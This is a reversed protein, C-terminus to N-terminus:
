ENSEIYKSIVELYGVKGRVRGSNPKQHEFYGQLLRNEEHKQFNGRFRGGMVELGGVIVELDGM